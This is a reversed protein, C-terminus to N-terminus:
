TESLRVVRPELVSALWFLLLGIVTCVTVVVTVAAYGMSGILLGTVAPGFALGVLQAVAGLASYRGDPDVGALGALQYVTAINWCFQILSLALALRILDSSAFFLISAGIMGLTALGLPPVRGFRTGVFIPAATGALGAIVGISLAQAVTAPPVHLAGSASESFAWFAGAASSWVAVSILIAVADYRVAAAARVSDQRAIGISRSQAIICALVLAVAGCPALAGADGFIGNLWSEFHLAGAAVVAVGTLAIGFARHPRATSALVVYSIAYLPGEGGFGTLFRILSLTQFDRCVMMLGDGVVCMLAAIVVVVWNVRKVFLGTLVCAIGIGLSEAGSLLGIQGANLGLVRGADNLYAPMVYTPGGGCIYLLTGVITLRIQSQPGAEGGSPGPKM